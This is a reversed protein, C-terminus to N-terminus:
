NPKKDLFVPVGWSTKQVVIEDDVDSEIDQDEVSDTLDTFGIEVFRNLYSALDVDVDEPVQVPIALWVEKM